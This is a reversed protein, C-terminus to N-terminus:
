AGSVLDGFAAIIQFLFGLVLLMSGLIKIRKKPELAVGGVPEFAPSGFLFVSPAGSIASFIVIAMIIESNFNEIFLAALVSGGLTSAPFFLSLMIIFMAVKHAIQEQIKENTLIAYSLLLVAVIDYLLGILNILKFYQFDQIFSLKWGTFLGLAVVVNRMINVANVNFKKM